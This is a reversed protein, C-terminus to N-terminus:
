ILGMHLTYMSLYISLSNYLILLFHFSSIVTSKEAGLYGTIVTVGVPPAKAIEPQQNSQHSPQSPNQDITENMAIALPPEEDDEDM